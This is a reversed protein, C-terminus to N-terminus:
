TYSKYTVDVACYRVSIFFFYAVQWLMTTMADNLILFSSPLKLSSQTWFGTTCVCPIRHGSWTGNTAPRWRVPCSGLPNESNINKHIKQCKLSHYLNTFYFSGSVHGLDRRRQVGNKRYLYDRVNLIKDRQLAFTKERRYWVHSHRIVVSLPITPVLVEGDVPYMSLTSLYIYGM